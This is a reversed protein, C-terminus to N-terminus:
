KEAKRKAKPLSGEIRGKISYEFRDKLPLYSCRLRFNRHSPGFGLGLGLSSNDFHGATRELRVAADGKLGQITGSCKANLQWGELGTAIGYCDLGMNLNIKDLIFRIDLGARLSQVVRGQLKQRYELNIGKLAFPGQPIHEWGGQFHLDFLSGRQAHLSTRFLLSDIRTPPPSLAAQFRYQLEHLKGKFDLYNDTCSDAALGLKWKNKILRTQLRTYLGNEYFQNESFGVHFSSSVFASIYQYSLGYLMNQSEPLAPSDSFWSNPAKPSLQSLAAFVEIASAQHWSSQTYLLSSNFGNADTASLSAIRTHGSSKSSATLPSAICIAVSPIRSPAAESDISFRPPALATLPALSRSFPSTLQKRIGQYLLPGALVLSGTGTHSFCAGFLDYHEWSSGEKFPLLERDKVLVELELGSRNERGSAKIQSELRGKENLESRASWNAEFTSEKKQAPQPQSPAILIFLLASIFLLNKM